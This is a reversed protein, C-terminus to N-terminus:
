PCSCGGMRWCFNTFRRCQSEMDCDQSSLPVILIMLRGPELSPGVRPDCYYSFRIGLHCLAIGSPNLSRTKLHLSPIIPATGKRPKSNPIAIPSFFNIVVEM